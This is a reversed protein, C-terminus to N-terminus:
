LGEQRTAFHEPTVTECRGDHVWLLRTAIKFFPAFEHTVLLITLSRERNLQALL